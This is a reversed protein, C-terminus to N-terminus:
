EMPPIEITEPFAVQFAQAARLIKDESGPLGIIQLGVPLGDILGCPVSAAPFAIWNFIHTFCTYTPVFTGHRYSEPERLWSREWEEVTPALLQLTPSLLLDHSTLVKRFSRWTRQRGDLAREWRDSSPKPVEMAIQFLYNTTVYDDWFDDSIHGVPEVKAGLSALRMAAQRVGAVVRPSVEQAYLQAYGLDDSWAFSMGEVGEDLDSVLNAPETKICAFDRGDPGAIAQLAIAADRVSRCLPGTSTTLGVLKPTDYHVEPVRGPTPHVGVVGAGAAPLRTSGGGDNGLAIPVLAASAASGGGSSSWGTVRGTDWPNRAEDQCDYPSFLAQTIGMATNTGVVIAGAERLRAVPLADRRGIGMDVGNSDIRRLGEVEIYEKVSIPVGHLVGLEEGKVVAAEARKAQARAGVEDIHQFARLTGNHEGIRALFHEIVEMPSVEREAILKRISWAPMWTLQSSMM